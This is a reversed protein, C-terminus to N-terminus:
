AKKENQNRSFERTIFEKVQCVANKAKEYQQPRVIGQEPFFDGISNKISQMAKMGLSSINVCGKGESTAVGPLKAWIGKLLGFSTPRAEGDILLNRAILLLDFRWPKRQIRELPM